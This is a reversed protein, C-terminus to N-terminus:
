EDDSEEEEDEEEGGEDEESSEEENDSEAEEAAAEAGARIEGPIMEGCEPCRADSTDLEEGCYPCEITVGTEEEDAPERNDEADEDVVEYLEEGCEPCITTGEELITECGPCEIATTEEEDEDEQTDEVRDYSKEKRYTVFVMAAIILGVFLVVGALVGIIIFNLPVPEEVFTEKLVVKQDTTEDGIVVVTINGSQDYDDATVRIDYTGAPLSIVVSGGTTYQTTQLEDHHYVEVKANDITNGDEDEVMIRLDGRVEADETLTINEWITAGAMVNAVPTTDQSYGSYIVQISYQGPSLKDFLYNGSADTTMDFVSGSGVGTITVRANSVPGSTISVKGRLIGYQGTTSVLIDEGAQDGTGGFKSVKYQNQARDYATFAFQYEVMPTLSSITLYHDDLYEEFVQEQWDDTNAVKYMVVFSTPEATTIDFMIRDYSPTASEPTVTFGPPNPDIVVQTDAGTKVEVNGALDTALTRFYLTKGGAMIGGPDATYTTNTETTAGLGPVTMWTTGDESYQVNYSAIGSATDAGSWELEVSYSRVYPDLATITSNPAMSDITFMDDYTTKIETNGALDRSLSRVYVTQGESGSWFASINSTEMIWQTWFMADYSYEITYSEIDTSGNEPGWEVLVNTSSFYNSSMSVASMPAMTDLDIGDTYTISETGAVDRIRYYIVKAGDDGALVWATETTYPIWDTFTGDNSICIMDVGSGPIQEYADLTLTVTRTATLDSGNNIVISGRPADTDEVYVKIYDYSSVTKFTSNMYSGKVGTVNLTSGMDIVVGPANMQYEVMEFKYYKGTGPTLTDLKLVGSGNKVTLNAGEIPIGNSWFVGLDVYWRVELQCGDPEMDVNSENFTSNLSVVRTGNELVLDAIACNSIMCQDMVASSGNLYVGYECNTIVIDELELQVPPMTMTYARIANSCDDYTDRMVKLPFNGEVSVGSSCNDYVNDYVEITGMGPVQTGFFAVAYDAINTFTNDHIDFSHDSPGMITLGLGCDVLDNGSLEIAEMGVTDNIMFLASISCMEITNDMFSVDSTEIVLGFDQTYNFGCGRLKSREFAFTTNQEVNILFKTDNYFPMGSTQNVYGTTIISMDDMTSKMGDNDYVQFISGNLVMIGFEGDFSNNLLITSNYLVMHGGEMITLNGNLQLTTNVLTLSSSANVYLSGNHIVTEDIIMNGTSNVFWEGDGSDMADDGTFVATTVEHMMPPLLCLLMLAALVLSLRKLDVM